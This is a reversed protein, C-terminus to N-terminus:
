RGHTPDDCGARLDIQRRIRRRVGFPAGNRTATTTTTSTSTRPPRRPTWARSTRCPKPDTRDNKLKGLLNNPIYSWKETGTATEIAHLMGYLDGCYAIESRSNGVRSKAGIIAPASHM